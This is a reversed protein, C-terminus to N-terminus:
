WIKFSGAVYQSSLRFAEIQAIINSQQAIFLEYPAYCDLWVRQEILISIMLRLRDASHNDGYTLSTLQEILETLQDLRKGSHCRGAPLLQQKGVKQQLLDWYLRSESADLLMYDGLEDSVEPSGQQQLYGEAVLEPDFLGLMANFGEFRLRPQKQPLLQRYCWLAVQADGKAGLTKIMGVIAQLCMPDLHSEYAAIKSEITREILRLDQQTGLSALWQGYGSAPHSIIDARRLYDIGQPNQYQMLALACTITGDSPTSSNNLFSVLLAQSEDNNIQGFLLLEENSLSDVSAYAVWNIDNVLVHNRACFIAALRRSSGQQTACYDLLAVKFATPLWHIGHFFVTNRTVENELFTVSFTRWDHTQQIIHILFALSRIDQQENEILEPIASCIMSHDALALLLSSISQEKETIAEVTKAMPLAPLDNRMAITENLLTAAFNLTMAPM